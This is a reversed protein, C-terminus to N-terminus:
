IQLWGESGGAGAERAQALLSLETSPSHSPASLTVFAGLFVEAMPLPSSLLAKSRSGLMAARPLCSCLLAHSGVPGARREQQDVCRTLPLPFVASPLCSEGAEFLGQQPAEAVLWHNGSLNLCEEFTVGLACHSGEGYFIRKLRGAGPSPASTLSPTCCHPGTARPERVEKKVLCVKYKPKETQKTSRSVGLCLTLCGAVAGCWARCVPQLM